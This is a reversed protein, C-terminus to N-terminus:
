KPLPKLSNLMGDIDKVLKDYDNKDTVLLAQFYRDKMGMMLQSTFRGKAITGDDNPSEMQFGWRGNGLDAVLTVTISADKLFRRRMSEVMAEPSSDPVTVTSVMVIAGPNKRRLKMQLEGADSAIEGDWEASPATMSFGLANFNATLGDIKVRPKPNAKPVLPPNTVTPGAKSASGCAFLCMAVLLLFLKQM